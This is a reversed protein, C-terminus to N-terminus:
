AEKKAHKKKWFNMARAKQEASAKPFRDNVIKRAEEESDADVARMEEASITEGPQVKKKSEKKEVKEAAEVDPDREEGAERELGKVARYKATRESEKDEGEEDDHAAAPAAAKKPEEKKVPKKDEKKAPGAAKKPEEKKEEKKKDGAAALNSKKCKWGGKYWYHNGAMSKGCDPCIKAPRAMEMLKAIESLRM